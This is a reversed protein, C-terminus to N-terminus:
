LARQLYQLCATMIYVAAHAVLRPSFKLILLIFTKSKLHGALQTSAIVTQNGQLWSGTKTWVRPLPVSVICLVIFFLLTNVFRLFLRM